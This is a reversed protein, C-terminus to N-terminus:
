LVPVKVRESRWYYYGLLVMLYVTGVVSVYAGYQFALSFARDLGELVYQGTLPNTLLMAVLLGLALKEKLKINVAM